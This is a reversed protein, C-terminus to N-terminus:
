MRAQSYAATVSTVNTTNTVVLNGGNRAVRAFLTSVASTRLQANYVSGKKIVGTACDVTFTGATVGSMDLVLAGVGDNGIDITLSASGAGAMVITLVPALSVGQLTNWNPLAVTYSNGSNAVLSEATQCYRRPDPCVLEVAYLATHGGSRRQTIIPVGAPRALFKEPVYYGDAVGTIPDVWATGRGNNVETTDTFTLPMVGETSLSEIQAEEVNFAALLEAIRDSLKSGTSATISGAISIYRFALTADGLDGGTLLHLAERQDRQQLRSADFRDVRATNSLNAANETGDANRHANFGFGRYALPFYYPNV